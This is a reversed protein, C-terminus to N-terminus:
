KNNKRKQISKNRKQQENFSNHRQGFLASILDRRGLRILSRYIEDRYESKYWFFYKRQALKEEPTTATYVPELTYPNLGTYYMETAVTMPTPTFDQVQELHFNM